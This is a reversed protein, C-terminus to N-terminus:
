SIAECESIMWGTMSAIYINEISFGENCLMGFYLFFKWCNVSGSPENGHDCSSAV